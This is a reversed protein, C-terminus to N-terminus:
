ADNNEESQKNAGSYAFERVGHFYAELMKLALDGKLKNVIGAAFKDTKNRCSFKSLKSYRIDNMFTEDAITKDIPNMWAIHGDLWTPVESILTAASIGTLVVVDTTFKAGQWAFEVALKAGQWVVMTGDTLTTGVMGTVKSEIPAESEWLRITRWSSEEEEAMVPSAIFILALATEIMGM